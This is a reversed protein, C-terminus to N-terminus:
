FLAAQRGQYASVLAARLHDAFRGADMLPSAAVRARLGARLAALRATDRVLSVAIRVYDAETEAILEPLGAAHLHSASHRGAFTAGRLTVVPVGCWLAELTTVGGSYPFTDLAVDIATYGALLEKQPGGPEFVIREADLGAEAAMERVVARTQGEAYCGYRLVFCAGPIAHAIRAWVGLVETNIKPARQFCGFRVPAGDLLPLPGPEPACSPPEFCVYCDPLRLIRETYFADEGDPVERADAVLADMSALGTTGTYGAWSVQFPAARRAFVAFRNRATVGSLDFLIDVREQAILAHLADDDLTNVVHWRESAARYREAYDDHEPQNAFCVIRCNRAALAEFARLTLVGVAHRRLDGSVIGIVLSATGQGIRGAAAAPAGSPLTAAYATHEAHLRAATIGPLHQLAFLRNTQAVADRPNLRRARDLAEICAAVRGQALMAWARATHLDSDTSHRVASDLIALARDPEGTRALAMGLCLRAQQLSPDAALAQSLVGVAEADGGMKLLTVGLDAQARASDPALTLAARFMAVADGLRDLRALSLGLLRRLEADAPSARVAKRFSAAAHRWEGRELAGRGQWYLKAADPLPRSSRAGM